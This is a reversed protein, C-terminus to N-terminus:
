RESGRKRAIRSPIPSPSQDGGWNSNVKTATDITRSWLRAWRRTSDRGVVGVSAPDMTRDVPPVSRVYSIVAQLDSDPWWNHEESPMFLLTQGDRGIGYRIARALEGDTYDAGVGGQGTTLNPGIMVGIPGLDEILSGGLDAGHCGRCGGFSSALHEGRALQTSDRSAVMELPLVDYAAQAARNFSIVQYALLAVLALVLVLIVTGLGKLLRKWNM